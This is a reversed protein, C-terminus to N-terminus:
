SWPNSRYIPTRCAPLRCVASARGGLPKSFRLGADHPGAQPVLSQLRLAAGLSLAHGPGIPAVSRAFTGRGLRWPDPRAIRSGMGRSRLGALRFTISQAAMNEAFEQLEVAEAPRRLLTGITGFERSSPRAAAIGPRQTVVALVRKARPDARRWERALPRPRRGHPLVHARQRWATARGRWCLSPGRWLPGSRSFPNRCARERTKSFSRWAGVCRRRPSM